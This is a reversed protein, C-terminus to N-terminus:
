CPWHEHVCRGGGCDKFGEQCGGDNGDNNCKGCSKKCVFTMYDGYQGSCYGKGKWESCKSNIDICECKKCSAACNQKMFNWYQSESCHSLPWGGCRSDKDTAVCKGGNDNDDIQEDSGDDKKGTKQLTPAYGMNTIGCVNGRGIRFYGSEGWRAGWSNKMLFYDSTYGVSTVAHGGGSCYGRRYIGGKYSMFDNAVSYGVSLPGVNNLANVHASDGRANTYGTLRLAIMGNPKSRYNCYGQSGKYPVASMPALRGSRKMWDYVKPMYGGKCSGGGSCDLAEQESFSKLIGGHTKYNGELAGVASFVWCSGCRGQNKVSTVAIGKWNKSSLYGRNSTPVYEEVADEGIQATLNFGMYMKKEEESLDSFMNLELEFSSDKANHDFVMQVSRRFNRARLRGETPTYHRGEDTQYASFLKRFSEPNSLASKLVGQPEYIASVAGIFAITLFIM